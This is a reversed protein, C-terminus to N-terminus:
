DKAADVLFYTDAAPRIRTLFYDMMDGLNGLFNKPVFVIDDPKLMVNRTRIGDHFAKHLNALYFEPQASYGNRVVLISKLEAHKNYGGAVAIADFATMGGEFQYLGPKLVDGMVLIKKSKYDLVIVSVHPDKIYQLLQQRIQESLVAPTVGAAKVEGILPYSIWGDPRVSMERKLDPYNWVSVEIKDGNGLVYGSQETSAAFASACLAFFLLVIIVTRIRIM